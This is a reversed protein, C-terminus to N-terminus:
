CFFPPTSPLATLPAPGSLGPAAGDPRGGPADGAPGSGGSEQWGGGYGWGRANGDGSWRGEVRKGDHGERAGPSHSRAPSGARGAAEGGTRAPRAAKASATGASAPPRAGSSPPRAPGGDPAGGPSAFPPSPVAPPSPAPPTAPASPGPPTSPAPRPVPAPAPAERGTATRAPPAPSAQAPAYLRRTTRQLGPEDLRIGGATLRQGYVDTIRVVFPGQGAGHEAVWYNGDDRSLGQWRGDRLVELRMLPNGHDVVQIALRRASSGPRVRFAVPLTMAPNRVTHYGVPVVRRGPYAIRTFARRSLDVEGPACAACEGVVQVRVVGRPGTVDLYAGCAVAGRYEEASVAVVLDDRVAGRLSCEGGGAPAPRTLSSACAANRGTQAGFAVLALAATASVAWALRRVVAPHGGAAEGPRPGPRARRPSPRRIQRRDANM